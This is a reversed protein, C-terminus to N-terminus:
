SSPSSSSRSRQLAPPAGVASAAWEAIRRVRPVVLRRAEEFSVWRFEDHEPRGLEPSVPLRVEGAPAEAVYYRAVKGGSYPETELFQEGWRFSLGTLGTEEEVERVAAALPDEGTGSLGKPFDWYAFARLLLCEWRGAHRRVVVVGCARRRPRSHDKTLTPM